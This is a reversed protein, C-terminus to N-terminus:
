FQLSLAPPEAATTKELHRHSQTLDALALSLRSPVTLESGDTCSCDVDIVAAVPRRAQSPKRFQATLQKPSYDPTSNYSFELRM